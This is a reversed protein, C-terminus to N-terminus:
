KREQLRRVERRLQEVERLLNDQQLAMRNLITITNHRGGPQLFVSAMFGTIIGFLGVGFIILISAIFRGMESVIVLDGYGITSFTVLTWWFADSATKIQAGPEGAEAWYILASGIGLQLFCLLIIGSFTTERRTKRLAAWWGPHKRIVVVVRWLQILRAWRLSEVMPLSGPLYFWNAKLYARRNRAIILGYFFHAIFFYCILSDMDYFFQLTEAPFLHGSFWRLSILTVSVLSLIAMLLDMAHLSSSLRSRM